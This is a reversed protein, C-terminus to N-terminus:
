RPKKGNVPLKAPVPAPSPHVEITATQGAILRIDAPVRDLTIRVPIRQVLRVWNFAPNINELLNSGTSRERDAIGRSISNVHGDISEHESMLMVTVRDGSHIGPLKTEEFYGEVYFSARDVLAMVPRSATVYSGVQLDLNTVTGSVAAVVRTRDLNLQATDRNIVAQALATNAQDVRAKGQERVEQAVLEKLESNRRAERLAQELAIRAGQEAAAAQRAALEFRSRDIEFLVQGAEISQNDRVFLKVVQGSVDPAVQVVNAKVRGDRTWPDAEYHQWLRWGIFSAAAVALLTVLVRVLAILSSRSFMNFVM